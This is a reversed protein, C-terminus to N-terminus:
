QMYGTNPRLRVPVLSDEMENEGERELGSPDYPENSFDDDNDNNDQDSIIANKIASMLNTPQSQDPPFYLSGVMEMGSIVVVSSRLLNDFPQPIGELRGSGMPGFKLNNLRESFELVVRATYSKGKYMAKIMFSARQGDNISGKHSEVHIGADELVFHATNNMHYYFEDWWNSNLQARKYWNMEDGFYRKLATKSRMILWGM